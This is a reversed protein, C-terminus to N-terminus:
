RCGSARSQRIGNACNGTPDTAWDAACICSSPSARQPRLSAPARGRRCKCSPERLSEIVFGSAALARAYSELPRDIGQFTMELGNRTVVDSVRHETFYYDALHEAPRNLPHVIAICLLGGPDLVRAIERIVSRSDPMDHLSM